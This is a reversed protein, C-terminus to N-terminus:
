YRFVACIPGEDPLQKRPYVYVEGGKTFTHLAAFDLLDRVINKCRTAQEVVTRVDDRRPDTEDFDKLLTHSFLLIIGLPNNLEHAIGASLQGMSALRESVSIQNQVSKLRRQAAAAKDSIMGVCIAVIVFFFARLLDAGFSESVMVFPRICLIFVGMFGAVWISKKGWWMGMLVIPVYALHTCVITTQLVIRSYAMIACCFVAALAILRKM